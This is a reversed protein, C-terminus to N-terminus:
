PEQTAEATPEETALPPLEVGPTFTIGSLLELMIAEAQEREDIATTLQINMFTDADFRVLYMTGNMFGNYIEARAAPYGNFTTDTIDDFLVDDPAFYSIARLVDSVANELPIDLGGFMIDATDLSMYVQMEGSELPTLYSATAAQATNGLVLTNLTLRQFQWESPFTFDVYAGNSGILVEHYSDPQPEQTAPPLTALAASDVQVSAAIQHATEVWADMDTPYNFMTLWVHQGDGTEVMLVYESRGDVTRHTEAAAHGDLTFSHLNDLAEGETVGLGQLMSDPTGPLLNFSTQLDGSVILMAVEGPVLASLAGAIIKTEVARSSVLQTFALFQDNDAPAASASITWGQPMDLTLAGGLDTYPELTLPEATSDQAFAPMAALLLAAFVPSLWQRINM